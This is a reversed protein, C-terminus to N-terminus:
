VSVIVSVPFRETLKSSPLMFLNSAAAYRSSAVATAVYVFEPPRLVERRCACRQCGVGTAPDARCQGRCEVEACGGTADASAPQLVDLVAVHRECVKRATANVPEIRQALAVRLRPNSPARVETFRSRVSTAAERITTTAGVADPVWVAAVTLTVIVRPAHTTAGRVISAPPATNRIAFRLPRAAANETAPLRVLTACPRWPRSATVTRAPRM